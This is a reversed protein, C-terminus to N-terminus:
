GKEDDDQVDKGRFWPKSFADILTQINSSPPQRGGHRKIYYCEWFRKREVDCGASYVTDNSMTEGGREDRTEATMSRAIRSLRAPLNQERYCRMLKLQDESCSALAAEKRRVRGFTSVTTTTTTTSQVEEKERIINDEMADREIHHVDEERLGPATEKSSSSGM